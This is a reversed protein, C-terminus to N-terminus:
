EVIILDDDDHVVVVPANKMSEAEKEKLALMLHQIDCRKQRIVHNGSFWDAAKSERNLIKPMLEEAKELFTEIYHLLYVGCDCHNPQIPVELKTGRIAKENFEINKKHRAEMVLYSKIIKLTKLKSPDSFTDVLKAKMPKRKAAPKSRLKINNIGSETAEEIPDSADLEQFNPLADKYFKSIKILPLNPKVTNFKAVGTVTIDSGDKNNSGIESIEPSPSDVQAGSNETVQAESNETVQVDDDLEMPVDDDLEMPVDNSEAIRSSSENDIESVTTKSMPSDVSSSQLEQVLQDSLGTTEQAIGDAGQLVSDLQDIEPEKLELLCAGPNYVIALYWHLSIYFEIVTDNLFEGENLRAVDQERVSICRRGKYPYNFIIENGLGLGVGSLRSSKRKIPEKTENASYLREDEPLEIKNRKQALSNETYPEYSIHEDIYDDDRDRPMRKSTRRQKNEVLTLGTAVDSDPMATVTGFIDILRQYYKSLNDKIKLILTKSTGHIKLLTFKDYNYTIKKVDNPAFRDVKDGCVELQSDTIILQKAINWELDGPSEWIREVPIATSKQAAHEKEVSNPKMADARKQITRVDALNLSKTLKKQNPKHDDEISIPNTQSYLKSHLLEDNKKDQNRTALQEQVSPARSKFTLMPQSTKSNSMTKFKALGEDLIGKKSPAGYPSDLVSKSKQQPHPSKRIKDKNSGFSNSPTDIPTGAYGQPFGSM